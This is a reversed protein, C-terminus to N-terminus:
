LATEKPEIRGRPWRVQVVAGGLRHNFFTVKGGSREFLTKAIFFGLGMGEHHSPSGEGGPRTTVYPEGLKVIVEPSFGAGDDRVEITLFQEDFRATVVVQTEAFDAANEIWSALAHIVEPLRWVDPVPLGPKGEVETLIMPGSDQYPESAEDLLQQVSLRGHVADTAQPKQSLQRLIERCRAAQSLLLQADEAQESGEPAARLMEKAVIQITALPTGLEHAAAAALGGLASLRQERSLVSQTAALALEMRSSELAAQWAYGATFAIGIVTAVWVGVEYLKPLQIAQGPYWPLPLSWVALAATVSFALLAVFLAHRTPLTAAAVTAPAILVLMFPNTLGGTLGLLLALQVVDFCLQAAAEWDRALRRGPAAFMLFVNLWASASIVALCLALPTQFGLYFTVFLVAAAQGSVALWRLLILTRVRLRGR